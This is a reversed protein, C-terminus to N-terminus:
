CCCCCSKIGNKVFIVSLRNVTKLLTGIEAKLAQNKNKLITVFESMKIGLFAFLTDIEAKLAQNEKKLITLYRKKNEEKKEPRTLHVSRCLNDLV